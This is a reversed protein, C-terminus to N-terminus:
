VEVIEIFKSKKPGDSLAARVEFIKERPVLVPIADVFFALKCFTTLRPDIKGNEISSLHTQPMKMKAAIQAQTLKRQKRLKALTEILPNMPVCSM